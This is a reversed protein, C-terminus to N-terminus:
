RAERKRIEFQNSLIREAKGVLSVDIVALPFRCVVAFNSGSGSRLQLKLDIAYYDDPVQASERPQFVQIDVDSVRLTPSVAM